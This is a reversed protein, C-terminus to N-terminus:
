RLGLPNVLKWCSTLGQKTNLGLSSSEKSQAPFIHESKNPLLSGDECDHAKYILSASTQPKLAFTM